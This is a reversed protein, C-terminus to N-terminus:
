NLGERGVFGFIQVPEHEDHRHDQQKASWPPQPYQYGQVASGVHSSSRQMRSSGRPIGGRGEMSPRRRSAQREFYDPTRQKPASQSRVKALSSETNAMYNPYFPCDYSLSAAYETRPISFPIRCPDPNSMASYCQPSSQVTYFSDDEFHGGCTRPSAETVASPAPSQKQHYDQNFHSRPFPFHMRDPQPHNPHLYSNRYKVSPKWEGLDMEVIKVDEEVIGRDIEQGPGYVESRAQYPNWFKFDQNSKCPNAPWLAYPKVADDAMHLRQARARAQATVLAQMCRLTEKTRERVLHGRVLAQLKVLGRLARLAKRALYSRFASQIKVAAAEEVTREAVATVGKKRVDEAISVVSQVALPAASNASSRRFSWRRKARPTMLPYVVPTAPNTGSSRSVNQSVIGAAAVKEKDKVAKDGKDKRGTLFQKLWIGPKGM